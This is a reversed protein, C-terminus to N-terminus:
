CSCSECCKAANQGKELEALYAVASLAAVNGEGAAKIYQYPTGTIDGCAFCGKINTAMKRDVAVHHGDLELNPMLQAPRISDRLIFIGDAKIERDELVLTDAKFGGRIEMPKERLVTVCAPLEPEAEYLPLYIVETALESLFAAEEENKQSASIIIAKKGKYLPADCTVCYSVGRGLFEAEGPYPKGFSVGTALIVTSAEYVDNARSILAFYSGMSFASVILDEKIEIDMAEAHSLFAGALDSGKVAPIGLYNQIEHAKEVKESVPERSIVLVRKNRLKLTIAASLGAPGAGLIIADYREPM